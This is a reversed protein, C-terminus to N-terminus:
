WTSPSSVNSNRHTTGFWGSRISIRAGPQQAGRRGRARRGVQFALRETASPRAQARRFVGVLTLPTSEGPREVTLRISDGPRHTAWIRPQTSASELPAGDVAVIRDGPRLGARQAPGGDSIRDIRVARRAPEYEADVGLEVAPRSRQVAVMWLTAYALTAAAFIVALPVLWARARRPSGPASTRAASM